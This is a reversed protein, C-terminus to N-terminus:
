DNPKPRQNTAAVISDAVEDGVGAIKAFSRLQSPLVPWFDPSMQRPDRGAAAQRACWADFSQLDEADLKGRFEDLPTTM